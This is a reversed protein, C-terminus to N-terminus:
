FLGKFTLFLKTWDYASIWEGEYSQTTDACYSMIDGRTPALAVQGAVDVGVDGVHGDSPKFDEDPEDPDKCPAHKLGYVHGLEHGVSEMLRPLGFAVNDGPRSDGTRNPNAGETIMGYLKKNDDDSDEQIDELDDLFRDMGSLSTLDHNAYVVESGSMISYSIAAGPDTPIPYIIPLRNVAEFYQARTPESSLATKVRVMIIQLQHVESFEIEVQEPNSVDSGVSAQAVLTLKGKAKDAPIEFNLTDTFVTADLNAIPKATMQAIPPLTFSADGSVTLTGTVGPVEGNNISPDVGSDLYVRVLTLKDAVLPVTNDEGLTSHFHQIAQTVEVGAISLDPQPTAPLIDVSLNVVYGDDDEDTKTPGLQHQGADSPDSPDIVILATGLSNENSAASPWDQDDDAYGQVIVATPGTMLLTVEQPSPSNDLGYVNVEDVENGGNNWRFLEQDIGPGKARIYIAMHTDGAEEDEYLVLNEFKLRVDAATTPAVARIELNVLYGTNDNDTKTPGIMVSGLTAPVRPDFVVSASGLSNENSGSTPWDQDDDAYAEVTLTAFSNLEVDITSINGPDNNLPYTNVEDVENGGNNWRFQGVTAGADDRVTAYLAVHTDGSEEDEFLTLSRFDIRTRAVIGVRGCTGNALDKRSQSRRDLLISLSRAAVYAREGYALACALLGMPM